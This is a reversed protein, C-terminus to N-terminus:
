FCRNGDPQLILIMPDIGQLLSLKRKINTHDPLEYDPFKKGPQIDEKMALFNFLVLSPYVIFTFFKNIIEQINFVFGGTM